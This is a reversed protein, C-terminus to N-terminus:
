EKTTKNQKEMLRWEVDDMVSRPRQQPPMTDWLSGYGGKELKWIFRCDSSAISEGVSLDGCIGHHCEMIGRYKAGHCLYEPIVLHSRSDDDDDLLYAAFQYGCLMLVIILALAFLSILVKHEKISEIM